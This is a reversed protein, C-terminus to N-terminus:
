EGKVQMELARIYDDVLEDIQRVIDSALALQRSLEHLYVELASRFQRRNAQTRDLWVENTM